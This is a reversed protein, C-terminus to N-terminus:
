TGALRAHSIEEEGRSTEGVRQRDTEKYDNGVKRRQQRSAGPEQPPSLPLSRALSCTLVSCLAPNRVAPALGSNSGRNAACAKRQRLGEVDGFDCRVAGYRVADCPVAGNRM